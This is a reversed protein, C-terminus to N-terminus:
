PRSLMTRESLQGKQVVKGMDEGREVEVIVYDGIKFVLNNKNLFFEKREGKFQVEVIETTM